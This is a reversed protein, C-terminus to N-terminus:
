MPFSHGPYDMIFTTSWRTIRQYVYCIVTSCTWSIKQSEMESIWRQLEQNEQFLLSRKAIIRFIHLPTTTTKKAKESWYPWMICWNMIILYFLLFSKCSDAKQLLLMKRQKAATQVLRRLKRWLMWVAPWRVSCLMNEMWGTLFIALNFLEIWAINLHLNRGTREICYM